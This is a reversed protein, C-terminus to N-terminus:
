RRKAEFYSDCSKNLINSRDFVTEFKNKKKSVGSTYHVEDDDDDYITRRSSRRSRGDSNESNESKGSYPRNIFKFDEIHNKENNFDYEPDQFSRDTRIQKIPNAGM